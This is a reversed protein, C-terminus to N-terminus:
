DREGPDAAPPAATDSAAEPPLDLPHLLLSRFSVPNKENRLVIRGPGRPGKTVHSVTVGNIEIEATGNRVSAKLKHWTGFPDAVEASRPSSFNIPQGQVELQTRGIQYLDGARGPLLQVELYGPGNPDREGAETLLLGVGSDGGPAELKYELSLVYNEHRTTTWLDGTKEGTCHLVGDSVGWAGANGQIKGEAFVEWGQLNTGNCLVIAADQPLSGTIAAQASAAWEQWKGVATKRAPGDATPDYGFDKGTLGRLAAHCQYRTQFNEADLLRAYTPLCRRENRAALAAAALLAATADADKLLGALPLDSDNAPLGGLAAATIQRIIASSGELCGTILPLDAPTATARAADFLAQSDPAWIGRQMVDILPGLLGKTATSAIQQLIRTLRENEKEVPFAAVLERLRIRSEPRPEQVALERVFGPLAPLAGLAKSAAERAPYADAELQEILPQLRAAGAADPLFVELPNDPPAAARLGASSLSLATMLCTFVKPPRM